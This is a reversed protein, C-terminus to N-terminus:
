LVTLSVFSSMKIFTTDFKVGLLWSYMSRSQKITLSDQLKMSLEVLNLCQMWTYISETGIITTQLIKIYM